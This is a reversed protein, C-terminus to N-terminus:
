ANITTQIDRTVTEATDGLLNGNEMFENYKRDIENIKWELSTLIWLQFHNVRSQNHIVYIIKLSLLAVAIEIIALRVTGEALLSAILCGLVLVTFIINYVKSTTSPMSGIQGVIGRVREKEKKFKDIQSRLEAIEEADFNRIDEM